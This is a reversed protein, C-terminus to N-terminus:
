ADRARPGSAGGGRLHRPPLVAGHGRPEAPRGVRSQATRSAGTGMRGFASLRRRLPVRPPHCGLHHAAHADENGQRLECGQRARRLLRRHRASPRRPACGGGEGRHLPRPSPSVQQPHLHGVAQLKRLNRRALCRRRDADAAAHGHQAGSDRHRHRSAADCPSPAQRLRGHRAIPKRGAPRFGGSRARRGGSPVNAARPRHRELGPNRAGRCAGTQSHADGDIRPGENFHTNHIRDEDGDRFSDNGRRPTWHPKVCVTADPVPRPLPPISAAKRRSPSAPRDGSGM